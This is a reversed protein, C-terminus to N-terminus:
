RQLSPGVKAVLRKRRDGDTANLFKVRARHSCERSSRDVVVEGGSGRNVELVEGGVGQTVEM